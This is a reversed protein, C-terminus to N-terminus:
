IINYLNVYSKGTLLTQCWMISHFLRNSPRSYTTTRHGKSRRIMYLIQRDFPDSAVNSHSFILNMLIREPIVQLLGVDFGRSQLGTKLRLIMVTKKRSAKGCYTRNRQGKSQRFAPRHLFGCGNYRELALIDVSSIHNKESYKREVFPQCVWM